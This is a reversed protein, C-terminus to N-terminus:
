SIPSCHSHNNNMIVCRLMASTIPTIFRTFFIGYPRAHVAALLLFLNLLQLITMKCRHLDNTQVSVFV